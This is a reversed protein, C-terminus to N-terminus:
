KDAIKQPSPNKGYTGKWDEVTMAIALMAVAAIIGLAWTSWDIKSRRERRRKDEASFHM